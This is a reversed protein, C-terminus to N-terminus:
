GATILVKTGLPIKEYAQIVDDNRLRVCGMSSPMGIKEEENTGHIYIYRSYSDVTGGKNKGPEEGTLWLIRTLVLDKKVAQGPKWVEKKPKAEEFVQGWPAGDGVKKAVSHWGLPTKYSNMESGTGKKATACRAEWIISGNEIIRMTQEQVSVWVGIGEGVWREWDHQALLEKQGRSLPNSTSSRSSAPNPPMVYGTETPATQDRAAIAASVALIIAFPL